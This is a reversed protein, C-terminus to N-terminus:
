MSWYSECSPSMFAPTDEAEMYKQGTMMNVREAMKTPFKLEKIVLWENVEMVSWSEGTKKILKTCAIKAGHETNYAEASNWYHKKYEKGTELNVIFYCM